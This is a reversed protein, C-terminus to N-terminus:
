VVSKRDPEIEYRTIVPGPQVEAVKGEVGFDLLKRELIEANAELEEKSIGAEMLAPMDLLSLPPPQFGEKPAVFPFSRQTPTVTSPAEPESTVPAPFPESLVSVPRSEM